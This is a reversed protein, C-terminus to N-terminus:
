IFPLKIAFLYGNLMFITGLTASGLAYTFLRRSVTHASIAAMIVAILLFFGAVDFSAARAMNKVRKAEFGAVQEEVKKKDERFRTEDAKLDQLISKYLIRTNKKMAPGRDLMDAEMRLSSTKYLLERTTLSQYLSHQDYFQIQTHMMNRVANMNGLFSLTLLAVFVVTILTARRTFAEPSLELLEKLHHRVWKVM